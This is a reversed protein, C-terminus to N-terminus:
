YRGAGVYHTKYYNSNLDTTVVGVNSNAAHIMKNNGIYIGVHGVSTGGVYSSFFVLDGAQLKSKSVKKSSKYQDSAVRPINKGCKKYVYQCLGSCDFSNPGTAGWVYPKGLQKKALSVVKTGFASTSESSGENENLTNGVAVYSKKVYGTKGNMVIKYWSGSTGRVTRVTGKKMVTLVKSSASAKARVNVNAKATVKTAFACTAFLASLLATM